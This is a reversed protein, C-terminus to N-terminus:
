TERRAQDLRRAAAIRAAAAASREAKTLGHTVRNREAVVAAEARAKAKRAQNLNIPKVM